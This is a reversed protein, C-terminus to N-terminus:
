NSVIPQLWAKLGNSDTVVARLYPEGSPRAYSAPNAGTRELVRGNGGIFETTYGTSDKQDITFEIRDNSRVM